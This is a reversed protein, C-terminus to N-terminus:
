VDMDGGFVSSAEVDSEYGFNDINQLLWDIVIGWAAEERVILGSNHEAGITVTYVGDNEEIVAQKNLRCVFIKNGDRTVDFIKEFTCHGNSCIKESWQSMAWWSRKFILQGKLLPKEESHYKKVLAEGFAAYEKTDRMNWYIADKDQCYVNGEGAQIGVRVLNANDVLLIVYGVDPM